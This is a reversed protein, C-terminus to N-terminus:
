RQPGRVLRNASQALEHRQKTLSVAKADDGERRARSIQQALLPLELEINRKALLPIGRRLVDEADSKEGYTEVALRESLWNLAGAETVNSLLASGDLVGNKQVLEAASRFICQLEPSTLLESLKKADESCFLEPVDLLLGVLEAQLKPLKAPEVRSTDPPRPAEAARNRSTDRGRTALVGRRLQQRVARQHQM